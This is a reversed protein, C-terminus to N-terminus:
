TQTIEMFAKENEDHKKKLPLYKSERLGFWGGVSGAFAAGIATLILTLLSYM